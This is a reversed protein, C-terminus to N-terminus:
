KTNDEPLKTTTTQIVKETLMQRYHEPRRKILDSLMNPKNSIGAAQSGKALQRITANNKPQFTQPNEKKRV